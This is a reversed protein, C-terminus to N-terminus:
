LSQTHGSCGRRTKDTGCCNIRRQADDFLDPSSTLNDRHLTYGVTICSTKSNNNPTATQRRGLLSEGQWRRGLINGIQTPWGFIFGRYIPWM